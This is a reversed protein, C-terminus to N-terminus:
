VVDRAPGGLADFAALVRRTTGSPAGPGVIGELARVVHGVVTLGPLAALDPFLAELGCGLAVGPAVLVPNAWLPM